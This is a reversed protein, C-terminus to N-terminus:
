LSVTEVASFAAASFCEEVEKNCKSFDEQCFLEIKRKDDM